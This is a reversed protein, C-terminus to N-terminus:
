KGSQQAEVQPVIIDDDTGEKRDPGASSCTIEDSDCSLKYPSGWPDKLNFGTDLDKEAKLQEISPCDEGPHVAKWQMTAQRATNCATKAAQVSARKQAGIVGISIAATLVGILTITIVLEVLTLGRSTSRGRLVRPASKRRRSDPLAWSAESFHIPQM